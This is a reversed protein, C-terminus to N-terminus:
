AAYRGNRLGPPIRGAGVTGFGQRSEVLGLERLHRLAERITHRSVGFRSVLQSESPIATGIPYIGTLIEARLARVVLKYLSDRSDPRGEGSLNDARGVRRSL